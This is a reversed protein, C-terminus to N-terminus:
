VPVQVSDKGIKILTGEKIFHKLAKIVEIEEIGENRALDIIQQKPIVQGSKLLANIIKRVEGYQHEEM